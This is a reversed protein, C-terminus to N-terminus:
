VAWLFGGIVVGLMAGWCYGVFDLSLVFYCVFCVWGLCLRDYVVNFCALLRLVGFGAGWVANEFLGGLVIM